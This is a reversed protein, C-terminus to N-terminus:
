QFSPRLSQESEQLVYLLVFRLCRRNNGIQVLERSCSHKRLRKPSVLLLTEDVAIDIRMPPLQAHQRQFVDVVLLSNRGLFTTYSM